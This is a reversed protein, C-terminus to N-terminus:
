GGGHGGSKATSTVAVSSSPSAANGAAPGKDNRSTLLAVVRAVASPDTLRDPLGQAACSRRVLDAAAAPVDYANM